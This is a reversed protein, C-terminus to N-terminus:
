ECLWKGVPIGIFSSKAKPTSRVHVWTCYCYLKLDADDV